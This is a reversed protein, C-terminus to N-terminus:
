KFRHTVHFSFFFGRAPSLSSIVDSSFFIFRISDTTSDCPPFLSDNPFYHIKKLFHFPDHSFNMSSSFSGLITLFAFLSDHPFLLTTPLFDCTLFHNMPFHIVSDYSIIVRPSPQTFLLFRTLFYRSEISKDIMRTNINHERM